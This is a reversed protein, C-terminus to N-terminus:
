AQPRKLKRSSLVNKVTILRVSNHVMEGAIIKLSDRFVQCLGITELLDPFGPIKVSGQGISRALRSAQQAFDHVEASAIVYKRIVKYQRDIRIHSKYGYHTEGHKM